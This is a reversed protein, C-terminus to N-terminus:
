VTGSLCARVQAWMPFFMQALAGMEVRHTLSFSIDGDYEMAKAKKKAGNTTNEGADDGGHHDDLLLPNGLEATEDKLQTEESKFKHNAIAMAEIIWTSSIFATACVILLFISALALGADAFAAPLLLVGSGLQLNLM